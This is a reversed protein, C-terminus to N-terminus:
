SHKNCLELINDYKVGEVRDLLNNNKIFIFTPVSTINFKEVLEEVEDIDVKCFTIDLMSESLDQILPEIRKCPGCWSAGFDVVLLRNFTTNLLNEFETTDEITIITM